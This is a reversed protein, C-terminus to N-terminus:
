AQKSNQGSQGIRGLAATAILTVVETVFLGGLAPFIYGILSKTRAIM